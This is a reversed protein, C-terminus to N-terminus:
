LPNSLANSPCSSLEAQLRIQEGIIAWSGRNLDLLDGAGFRDSVPLISSRDPPCTREALVRLRGKRLPRQQGNGESTLDRESAGDLNGSFVHMKDDPLESKPQYLALPLDCIFRGKQKIGRNKM